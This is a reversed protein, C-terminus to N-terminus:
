QECKRGYFGWPCNGSLWDADDNCSEGVNLLNKCTPYLETLSRDCRGSACLRQNYLDNSCHMGNEFGKIPIPFQSANENMEKLIDFYGTNPFLVLTGDLRILDHAQLLLDFPTFVQNSNLGAYAVNDKDENSLMIFEGVSYTDLTGLFPVPDLMLGSFGGLADKYLAKGFRYHKKFNM